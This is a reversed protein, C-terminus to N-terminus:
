EYIDGGDKQVKKVPIINNDYIIYAIDSYSSDDFEFNNTDFIMQESFNSGLWIGHNTVIYNRFNTDLQLKKYEDYKEIIILTTNDKNKINNLLSIFTKKNAYKSIGNVFYIRHIDPAVNSIVEQYLANITNDLNDQYCDVPLKTTDFVKYFDVVRVKVNEISKVISFLSRFFAINSDSDDYIITNIKDDKFNYIAPTKNNIDIGIPVHNLGKLDGIVEDVSVVDPLVPIRPATYDYFDNLTDITKKINSNIQSIETIFATQFEYKMNDISFIGRGKFRAPVLGRKSDLINRYDTDNPMQLCVKNAFFESLRMRFSNAAGTTITFTIGYNIGDRYLTNFIESVKPLTESFIEYNNIIVHILPIKKGSDKIYTSYNGGYDVFLNKRNDMEKDLMILLNIIKDEDDAICVDGVQPAKSFQKMTEAGFDLIYFNVEKPSHKIITSYVMTTLLDEKGSDNTGYILTNKTSLNFTLINQEQEEPNDYEGIVPNIFYPTTTYNYKKIINGLYIKEPIIDLWLKRINLKEEKSVDILYKVINTLQDGINVNKENIIPADNGKKVVTGVSNIINISDDIEKVITDTPIYKAGAWASQGIDFYEDYGVQLYFRGAEKLSAADPKKLVEQSDGRDQVKLCVRFKSNSWIQDNVVGAPKQTALILHVGLARGIRATSILEDMFDPQQSKLEAFEDSIIFLHSIPEKLIGDRYYRQYKYIDITSEGTINKADNFMKQRRKLESNISVLSRNMENTDLNTITGVVHPVIWGQEKNEFAGALGGGKYDILVFQVENPDYNLCMSLVYTIIFESKGSGTSGAILGHPGHAKEHLDLYFLDGNTHVGIPAKLEEIPINNKWRNVVNFQQVRSLNYMELFTLMTPLKADISAGAIPINAIKNAVSRLDINKVLDVQNYVRDNVQKNIIAVKRDENVHLISNCENPLNHISDDIISISFGLNEKVEIIDKIIPINKIENFNDTIILYYPSHNKYFDNKSFGDKVQEEDSLKERGMLIDKRATFDIELYASLKKLDDDDFSYFRIDKSANFCHPTYKAFKYLDNEKKLIFVLKLDEASFYSILQLFIGRLFDDKYQPNAIIASIKNDKFSFLLPVNTLKTSKNAVEIVMKELNDDEITFHEKPAQLNIKADSDGVGVRISLFDDDSLSKNWLTNKNLEVTHMYTEVLPPYNLELIDAQKKLIENLEAEKDGVYKSYKTQRLEERKKLRKKNYLNALQPILLTGILLTVCMILSPLVSSLDKTGSALGSIATYGTLMSTSLMTISTGLTLLLPQSENTLTQPPPDISVDETELVKRLRMSHFFYDDEDYLEVAKEEDSVPDFVTNDYGDMEQFPVVSFNRIYLDNPPQSIQIFTEMWIIKLGYLFIVDGIKLIASKFSKGNLYAISKDSETAKILWGEETKNIELQNALVLNSVYSLDCSKDSGITIHNSNVKFRSYKNDFSPLVYLGVNNDKGSVFLRYYNHEVLKISELPANGQDIVSVRSNSKLLWSGNEAEITVSYNIKSKVPVYDISYSGSVKEPLNFKTIKENDLIFVRM